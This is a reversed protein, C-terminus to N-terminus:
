EEVMTQVLGQHHRTRTYKTTFSGAIVVADDEVRCVCKDWLIPSRWNCESYGAGTPQKEETPDPGDKLQGPHGSDTM